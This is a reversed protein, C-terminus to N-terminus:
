LLAPATQPTYRTAPIQVDLIPEAELSLPVAPGEVSFSVSEYNAPGFEATNPDNALVLWMDVIVRSNAARLRRVIQIDGADFDITARPTGEATDEPLELSFRSQQYVQTSGSVTSQVSENNNAYYYLTGDINVRILMLTAQSANVDYANQLFADSYPM